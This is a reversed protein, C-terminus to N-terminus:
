GSRPSAGSSRPRASVSRAYRSGRGANNSARQGIVLDRDPSVARILEDLKDITPVSSGQEYRAFANRSRAGLRQAAEALSLGSRRRQRSLMLRVLASASSSSVEFLEGGLDHITVRVGRETLLSHFWDQIMELAESRTRGQTLADFVPVEALWWRGDRSLNGQFRM